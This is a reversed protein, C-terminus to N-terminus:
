AFGSRWEDNHSDGRLLPLLTGNAFIYSGGVGGGFSDRPMEVMKVVSWIHAWSSEAIERLLGGPQRLFYAGVEEKMPGSAMASLSTYDDVVVIGNLLAADKGIDFWAVECFQHGRAWWLFALFPLVYLLVNLSLYHWAEGM